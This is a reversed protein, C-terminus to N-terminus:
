TINRCLTPRAVLTRTAEVASSGRSAGKQRWPDLTESYVNNIKFTKKKNRNRLQRNQIYIIVHAEEKNIQPKKLLVELLTM